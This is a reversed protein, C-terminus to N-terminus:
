NDREAWRSAGVLWVRGACREFLRLVSVRGEVNGGGHAASFQGFYEHLISGFRCDFVLYAEVSTATPLFKLYLSYPWAPRV